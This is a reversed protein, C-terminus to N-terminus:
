RWEKEQESGLLATNKSKLGETYNRSKGCLQKETQLWKMVACFMRSM